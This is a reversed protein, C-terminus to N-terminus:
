AGGRGFGSVTLPYENITWQGTKYNWVYVLQGDTTNAVWYIENANYNAYGFVREIESEGVDKLFRDRVPGGISTPTDGNLVYFDDRGLFANTGLMEVLSWPAVLGIGKKPSQYNVPAEANGSRSGIIIGDRKYVVLYTGVRGLGTIIDDTELFDNEGATSDSWDTPDSEKSWKITYPSRTGSIDLDAVFLRNAFERCYRAKSVDSAALDTASGTGNWCQMAINGNTFCFLDGVIAWSWRENTPITYAAAGLSTYTGAPDRKCLDNETLYLTYRSGDKLQYLVIDYVASPLTRDLTYGWRKIFSNQDIRGNIVSPSNKPDTYLEPSSTDIGLSIPTISFRSYAM